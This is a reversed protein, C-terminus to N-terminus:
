SAEDLRFGEGLYLERASKSAAIEAPTGEAITRGRSVIYARHCISLTERVNHDTLLLGLGRGALATIHSRIDELALPDIGSFPEDLLLYRPGTVLSRAIELRRREGGSCPGAQAGAVTGLAFEDLVQEVRQELRRGRLGSAQLVLRLNDRVSLRRFVSPQQSLFGVGARARRYMPWATIDMDDLWVRGQEPRVLGMMMHFTTTKGAGNPGLLGVIEGATVQLSLSDVVTRGRYSKRLDIARLGSGSDDKM